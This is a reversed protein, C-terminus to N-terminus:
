AFRIYNFLRFVGDRNGLSKGVYDSEFPYVAKKVYDPVELIARLSSLPYEKGGIGEMHGSAFVKLTGSTKKDNGLLGAPVKLNYNAVLFEQDSEDYYHAIVESPGLRNTEEWDLERCEEQLLADGLRYLMQMFVQFNGENEAATKIRVSKENLCSYEEFLKVAGRHTFSMNSIRWSDPRRYVYVQKPRIGYVTLYDNLDTIGFSCGPIEMKDIADEFPIIHPENWDLESNYKGVEKDTIGKVALVLAYVSDASYYDPGYQYEFLFSETDMNAEVDDFDTPIWDGVQKEVLHLPWKNGYNDASGPFQLAAFEKLTQKEKETFNFM